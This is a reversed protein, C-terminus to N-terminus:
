PAHTEAWPGHSPTSQQGPTPSRASQKSSFLCLESSQGSGSLKHLVSPECPRLQAPVAGPQHFRINPPKLCTVRQPLLGLKYKLELPQSANIVSLCLCCDANNRHLSAMANEEVQKLICEATNTVACCFM